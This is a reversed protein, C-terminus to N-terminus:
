LIEERRIKYVRTASRCYSIDFCRCTGAGNRAPTYGTVYDPRFGMNEMTMLDISLLGGRLAKELLSHNHSLATIIRSRALRSQRAM